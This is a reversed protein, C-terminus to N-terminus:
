DLYELYPVLAKEAASVEAKIREESKLLNMQEESLELGDISILGNVISQKIGLEKDGASEFSIVPRGDRIGTIKGVGFTKHRIVASEVVADSILSLVNELGTSKANAEDVAQQLRIAKEKREQMLQREKSKPTVIHIGDFLHYTSCCYIMDFLLIHKATDPHMGERDHEYRSEATALLAPNNNIAEICEDCMRYYIDLKTDPGSGWDDYFEVCDAFIRCHTAKYLYSHDPDYLFLYGTVSHLDDTYRFSDPFYKDRLAHSTDMFRYIEEEKTEVDEEVTAFLDRFMKRVTGPDKKAFEVLGGFPQVSSDILNRTLRRVDSLKKPFDEDSAALAADMAPRFKKAIQWKYYEIHPKSNTMEFADIYRDALEQFKELNM